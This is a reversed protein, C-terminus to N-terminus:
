REFCHLPDRGEETAGGSGLVVRRPASGDELTSDKKVVFMDRPSGGEGGGTGGGLGEISISRSTQKMIQGLEKL